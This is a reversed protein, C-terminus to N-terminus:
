KKEATVAEMTMPVSAVMAGDRHVLHWLRRNTAALVTLTVNVGRPGVSHRHAHALDVLVEDPDVRRSLDTLAEGMAQALAEAVATTTLRDDDHRRRRRYGDHVHRVVADIQAGDIM